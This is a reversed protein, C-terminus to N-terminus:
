RRESVTVQLRKARALDRKIVPNAPDLNRAQELQRVAQAVQGKNLSSLGNMRLANAQRPNSAPTRPAVPLVKPPPATAVSPSPRPKPKPIPQQAVPAQGPVKILQGIKLDSPVIIGNYRALLYFKLRDGLYRKALSQFTDGVAVRYDFARDGLAIKPDSDLSALLQIARTDGPDRKIMVKLKKEAAKGDGDNLLAVVDSLEQANSIAQVTSPAASQPRPTGSGCATLCLLVGAAFLRQTFTM